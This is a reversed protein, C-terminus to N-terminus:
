QNIKNVYSASPIKGQKIWLLKLSDAENQNFFVGGAVKIKKGPMESLNLSRANILGRAKYDKVATEAVQPSNCALVIVAWASRKVTDAPPVAPIITKATTDKVPAMKKATDAKIEHRSVQTSTDDRKGTVKHYLENMKATAPPYFKYVGFIALALVALTILIILWVNVHRKHEAEEEFYQPQQITQAPAAATVAPASATATFVPKADGPSLPQGLKYINIEPYGYFAPDAAVRENPKFVLQLDKDTYFLGLDAFLYKGKTAEEKLKSIFKEAFYKSSALSINKKDAVYQAFTDDDKPQPVFKVQHYPPYFKSEKDDYYANVRTRVFYGLGPVSVEDHLGLLESLYDALNM